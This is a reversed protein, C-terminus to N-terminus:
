YASNRLVTSRLPKFGFPTYSGMIPESESPPMLKLEPASLPAFYATFAPAGAPDGAPVCYPCIGTVNTM